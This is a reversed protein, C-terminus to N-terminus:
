DVGRPWLNWVSTVPCLPAQMGRGSDAEPDGPGDSRRVGKQRLSWSAAALVRGKEKRWDQGLETRGPCFDTPAPSHSTPNSPSFTLRRQLLTTTWPWSPCTAKSGYRCCHSSARVKQQSGPLCCLQLFCAPIFCDPTLPSHACLVCRSYVPLQQWSRAATAGRSTHDMHGSRTIKLFLWFDPINQSIELNKFTPLLKFFWQKLSTCALCFVETPQM